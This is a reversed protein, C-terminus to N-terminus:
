FPTQMVYICVSIYWDNVMVCLIRRYFTILCGCMKENISKWEKERRSVWDRDAARKWVKKKKKQEVGSNYTNRENKYKNHYSKIHRGYAQISSSTMTALKKPTTVTVKRKVTKRSM